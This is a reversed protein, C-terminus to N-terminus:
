ILTGVYMAIISLIATLLLYKYKKTALPILNIIIVFVGIAINTNIIEIAM